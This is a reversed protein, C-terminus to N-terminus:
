SRMKFQKALVATQFHESLVKDGAQIRFQLLALFNGHNALDTDVYTHDDQHGRLSIGQRGCFIIEVISCLKLRDQAIATRQISLQQDISLIRKNQIQMFTMAADVAIKHFKKGHSHEDLKEAAKKFNIFPKTVFIGLEKM